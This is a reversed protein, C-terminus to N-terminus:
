RGGFYTRSEILLHFSEAAQFGALLSRNICSQHKVQHCLGGRHVQMGMIGHEINTTASSVESKPNKLINTRKMAVKNVQALRHKGSCFLANAFHADRRNVGILGIEPCDRKAIRGDVTNQSSGDKMVQSIIFIPFKGEFTKM